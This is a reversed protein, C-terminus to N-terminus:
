AFRERVRAVLRQDDASADRHRLYQGKFQYTEHSPFEEITVAFSGNDTLNEVLNTVSLAPVMCALTRHDTGIRWGVVRHGCPVLDRDRSGATGVNARDEHFRELKGPIM